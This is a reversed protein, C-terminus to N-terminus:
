SWIIGFRKDVFNGSAKSAIMMNNIKDAEIDEKALKTKTLADDIVTSKYLPYRFFSTSSFVDRIMIRLKLTNNM